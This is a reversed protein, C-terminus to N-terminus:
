SIYLSRTNSSSGDSNARHLSVVRYVGPEVDLTEVLEVSTDDKVTKDWMKYTKWTGSDLHQLEVTVSVEDVKQQAFTIGTVTVKGDGAKSIRSLGSQLYIGRTSVLAYGESVDESTRVSIDGINRDMAAANIPFVVIISIVLSIISIIVTKLKSM